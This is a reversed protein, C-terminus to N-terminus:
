HSHLHAFPAIHHFVSIPFANYCVEIMYGGFALLHDPTYHSCSIATNCHCAMEADHTKRNLHIIACVLMEIRNAPISAYIDLSHHSAEPRHTQCASIHSICKFTRIDYHYHSRRSSV